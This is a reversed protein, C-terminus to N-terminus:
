VEVERICEVRDTVALEKPNKTIKAKWRIGNGGDLADIVICGCGDNKVLCRPHASTGDVDASAGDLAVGKGGKNEEEENFGHL